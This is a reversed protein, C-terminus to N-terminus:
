HIALTTNNDIEATANFGQFYRRVKPPFHPFDLQADGQAVNAWFYRLSPALQTALDQSLCLPPSTLLKLMFPFSHKAMWERSQHALDPWGAVSNVHHSEIELIQKGDPQTQFNLIRYPHPYSVLSGTTIEYIGRWQAIDQVHLHGTFVLKVGAQHLIKLLQPSNQLLYRRGLPNTAQGPLHEIVNHHIMVLVLENQAQTLVQQLWDLQETDVYGLQTGTEDFTNSNLGILRVGPLIKHTYYPRDCRHYGFRRYYDPFDNLGTTQGNGSLRPVDHNGPVVYVPYPLKALRESLWIHNDVEGHQTLDGPLLLFDLDLQTLHELVRELAPISAEVLHFRKPHDWITHSLAIHLDSAIAFRFNLHKM